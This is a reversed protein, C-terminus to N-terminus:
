PLHSPHRPMGYFTARYRRYILDEARSFTFTFSNCFHIETACALTYATIGSFGERATLKSRGGMEDNRGSGGAHRGRTV